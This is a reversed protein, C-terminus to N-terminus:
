LSSITSHAVSRLSLNWHTKRTAHYRNEAVESDESTDRWLEDRAHFRRAMGANRLGDQVSFDMVRGTPVVERTDPQPEMAAQFVRWGLKGEGLGRPTM